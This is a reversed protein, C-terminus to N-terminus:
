PRDRRARPLVLAVIGLLVSGLMGAKAFLWLTQAQLPNEGGQKDVTYLVLSPDEEPRLLHSARPAIIRLTSSLPNGYVEAVPDGEAFLAQNMEITAPEHMAILLVEEGLLRDVVLVGAPIALAGAFGILLLPIRARALFRRADTRSM